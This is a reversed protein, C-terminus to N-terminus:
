AAATAPTSRWGFRAATASRKVTDLVEDLAVSVELFYEYGAASVDKPVRFDATLRVLLAETDPMWPRKAVICLSDDASELEAIVERLLM